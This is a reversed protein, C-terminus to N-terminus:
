TIGQFIVFPRHRQCHLESCIPYPKTCKPGSESPETVSQKDHHVRGRGRDRGRVTTTYAAGSLVFTNGTIIEIEIKHGSNQDSSCNWNLVKWYKNNCKM